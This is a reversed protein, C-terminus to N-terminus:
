VRIALVTVDDIQEHKGKWSRYSEEMKEGIERIPLHNNNVIWEKLRKTTMKKGNEGGFQDAFGDTFLYITDGKELTIEQEAFQQSNETFGGISVKDAKIEVLRNDSEDNKKIILLPRNAGAYRIKKTVTNIYCLIIDMGDRINDNGSNGFSNKIEKNVNELIKGPSNSKIAADSLKGMCISSVLAGPVGHGTCDGVAVIFESSSVPQMWYFDGSVIDKPNFFLFYQSFSKDFLIRPSLLSDQIRKAYTISATIETNKEEIAQKQLEIKQSNELNESKFFYIIIALLCFAFVYNMFAYKALQTVDGDYHGSFNKQLYICTAFGILLYACYATITRKEDFLFIIIAPFAFLYIETHTASGYFYNTSVFFLMSTNFSLHRALGFLGKHTLYIGFLLELLDVTTLYLLWHLGTFASVIAFFLCFLSGALSGSIFLRRKQREKFSFQHFSVPDIIPELLSAM